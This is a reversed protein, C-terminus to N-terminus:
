SRAATSSFAVVPPRGVFRGGLRAASPQFARCTSRRRRTLQQAKNALASGRTPIRSLSGFVSLRRPRSGPAYCPFAREIRATGTRGSGQEHVEAAAGGSRAPQAQQSSFTAFRILSTLAHIRLCRHALASDRRGFEGM